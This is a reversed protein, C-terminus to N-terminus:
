ARVREFGKWCHINQPRTEKISEADIEDAFFERIWENMQKQGNRYGARRLWFAMESSRMTKAGKVVKFCQEFKVQTEDPHEASADQGANDIAAERQKQEEKLEEAYAALEGAILADEKLTLTEAAIMFVKMRDPSLMHANPPGNALVMLKMHEQDGDGIRVMSGEYKTSHFVGGSVIELTSYLKTNNIMTRSETRSLDIMTIPKKMFQSDPNKHAQKQHESILHKVDRPSEPEAILADYKDVLFKAFTTKGLEGTISYVWWIHRENDDALIFGEMVQMCWALLELEPALQARCCNLCLSLSLSGGL